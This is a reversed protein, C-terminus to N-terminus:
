TAPVIKGLVNKPYFGDNHNMLVTALNLLRETSALRSNRELLAVDDVLRINELKSVFELCFWGGSKFHLIGKRHRKPRAFLWSKRFRVKRFQAGWVRDAEKVRFPYLSSDM